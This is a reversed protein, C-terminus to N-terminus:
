CGHSQTHEKLAIRAHEADMRAGQAETMARRFAASKVKAKVLVSVAESQRDTAEIYASLLVCQKNIREFNSM